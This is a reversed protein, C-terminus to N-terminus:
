CRSFVPFDRLFDFIVCPAVDRFVAKRPKLRKSKRSPNVVRIRPQRAKPRPVIVRVAAPPHGLIRNQKFSPIRIKIPIHQLIRHITCITKAKCIITYWQIYHITLCKISQYFLFIREPIFSAQSGTTGKAGRLKLNELIFNLEELDIILDQMYLTLRKGVTTPQAAQFHTYALTPINKYKLANKKLLNLVNIIKKKVILLAEKM